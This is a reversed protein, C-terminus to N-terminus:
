LGTAASEAFPCSVRPHAEVHGRPFGTAAVAGLRCSTSSWAHAGRILGVDLLLSMGMWVASECGADASHPSDHVVGPQRRLVSSGTRRTVVPRPRAPSALRVIVSSM